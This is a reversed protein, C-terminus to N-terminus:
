QIDVCARTAEEKSVKEGAPEPGFSGRAFDLFFRTFKTYIRDRGSCPASCCEQVLAQRFCRGCVSDVIDPSM